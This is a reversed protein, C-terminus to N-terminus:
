ALIQVLSAAEMGTTVMKERTRGAVILLGFSTAFAFETKRGTTAYQESPWLNFIAFSGDFFDPTFPAGIFPCLEPRSYVALRPRGLDRSCSASPRRISKRISLLTM